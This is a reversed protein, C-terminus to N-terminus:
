AKSHKRILYEAFELDEPTTIKINQPNGDLLSIEWGEHAYVSADDTFQIEEEVLYAKRIRELDFTQPTQVLRFVQRDQASSQGTPSLKRLSDKVPVVPVASGTESALQFCARIVEISVFPRVGDHIAVLGKSFSIAELGNRSSQFRSDGGAVLQHPIHFHHIQCLQEWRSFDQKPLVLILEVAADAEFFVELTHMLIPRGGIPLYQKAEPTGMRTGQGGAVLIVAKNM